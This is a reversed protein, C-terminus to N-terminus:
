AEEELHGILEGFKNFFYENTECFDIQEALNMDAFYDYKIVTNGEEDEDEYPFPSNYMYNIFENKADENLEKYEYARVKILKSM